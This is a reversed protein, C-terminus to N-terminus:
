GEKKKRRKEKKKNKKKTKFIQKMLNRNVYGKFFGNLVLIAHDFNPSTSRLELLGKAAPGDTLKSSSTSSLARRHRSVFQSWHTLMTRHQKVDVSVMLSMLVPSGLGAVEVKM